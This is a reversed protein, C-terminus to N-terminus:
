YKKYYTVRVKSRIEDTIIFKNHKPIKLRCLKRHLYQLNNIDGHRLKFTTIHEPIENELDTCTLKLTHVTLPINHLFKFLHLIKVTPPLYELINLNKSSFVYIKLKIISPNLYEMTDNKIHTCISLCTINSCLRTKFKYINTSLYKIKAPLKSFDLPYNESCHLKLHTLNHLNYVFDPEFNYKKKLKLHTLTDSIINSFIPKSLRFLLNLSLLDRPLLDPSLDIYSNVTLHKVSHPVSFYYLKQINIKLNIISELHRIDNCSLYKKTMSLSNISKPIIFPKYLDYNLNYLERLGEPLTLSILKKLNDMNKEFSLKKLQTVDAFNSRENYKSIKLEALTPPLIKFCNDINKSIKLIKVCAPLVGEFFYEDNIKTKFILKQINLKEIMISDEPTFIIGGDIRRDIIITVSALNPLRIHKNTSYYNDKVNVPEFLFHLEDHKVRISRFRDSYPIKKLMQLDLDADFFIKKKLEYFFKSVSTLCIKDLDVFNECITLWIDVPTDIATM